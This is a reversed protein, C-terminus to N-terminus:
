SSLGASWHALDREFHVRVVQGADTLDLRAGSVECRRLVSPLAIVRRHPGLDVVLDGDDTLGVDLDSVDAGPVSVDLFWRDGDAQVETAARVAGLDLPDSTGLVVEALALLSEIGM